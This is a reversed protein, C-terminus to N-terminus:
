RSIEHTMVQRLLKQIKSKDKQENTEIGSSVDIGLPHKQLLESINEPRVGGAILCPLGQRMAEETYDPVAEWDFKIGTGGWAGKVKSDIVYGDVLSEFARMYKLGEQQHHIAKWIPINFIEKLNLVFSPTEKGHLQIIDLPVVELIQELETLDPQVFVGVLKQGPSLPHLSLWTQLQVPNVKRKSDAFIVGVFDATTESVTKLDEMSRNGCLKVYLTM